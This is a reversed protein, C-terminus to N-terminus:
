RKGGMMFLLLVGAGGALLIWTPIGFTTTQTLAPFTFAAAPANSQVAGGAPATVVAPAPANSQAPPQAGAAAPTTTPGAPAGGRAARKATPMPAPAAPAPTASPIVNQPLVAPRNSPATGAYAVFAPAPCEAFGGGVNPSGKTTCQWWADFQAQNFDPQQQAATLNMQYLPSGVGQGGAIFAAASQLAAASPSSPSQGMGRRYFRIPQVVRLPQARVMM